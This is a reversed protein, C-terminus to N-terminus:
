KAARTRTISSASAARSRTNTRRSAGASDRWRRTATEAPWIGSCKTTRAIRRSCSSSTRYRVTRACSRTSRPRIGVARAKRIPTTRRRATLRYRIHAFRDTNTAGIYDRDSDRRYRPNPRAGEGKGDLVYLTSGVALADTPYWGAPMRGALRDDRIVAVSNAAGLSVLIGAPGVSIDNPSAGIVGGPRDGVAVSGVAHLDGADYIGVSDADSQAVYVKADVVAIAGPTSSDPKGAHRRAPQSTSFRVLEGTSRSTAFLGRQERRTSRSVVRNAGVAISRAAAVNGPTGIRVAGDGDTAVALTSGDRTATVFIPYSHAPLAIRRVRRSAVDVDLVAYANAGAVLVRNGDLGSRAALRAPFRSRHSAHSIRCATSRSRRPITAAERGCHVNRGSIRGYRAADDGDARVRRAAARDHLRESAYDTSLGNHALAAGALFAAAVAVISGIRFARRGRESAM